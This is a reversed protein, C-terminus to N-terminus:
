AGRSPVGRPGGSWDRARPASPGPARSRVRGARRAPPSAAAACRSDITEGPPVVRSSIIRRSPVPKQISSKSTPSRRDPRAAGETQAKRAGAAHAAPPKGVLEAGAQEASLDKATSPRMSPPEAALRVGVARESPARAAALDNRHLAFRGSRSTRPTATRPRAHAGAFNVSRSARAGGACPLEIALLADRALEVAGARLAALRRAPFPTAGRAPPIRSRSEGGGSTGLLEAAQKRPDRLTGAAPASGGSQGSPVAGAAGESDAISGGGSRKSSSARAMATSDRPSADSASSDTRRPRDTSRTTLAPPRSTVHLRSASSPSRRRRRGARTGPGALGPRREARFVADVQRREGPPKVSRAVEREGVARSRDVAAIPQEVRGDGRSQEGLRAGRKM